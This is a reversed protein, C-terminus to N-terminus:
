PSRKNSIRFYFLQDNKREKGFLPFSFGMTQSPSPWRELKLVKSICTATRDFPKDRVCEKHSPLDVM